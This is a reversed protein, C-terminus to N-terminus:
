ETKHSDTGRRIKQMIGRNNLGRAPSNLEIDGFPKVANEDNVGNENEIETENPPEPIENGPVPECM